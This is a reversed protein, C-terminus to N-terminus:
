SAREADVLVRLHGRRTLEVVTDPDPEADIGQDARPAEQGRLGIVRIEDALESLSMRRPVAAPEPFGILRTVTWGHPATFRGAHDLCLEPVGPDRQERLPGVQVRAQGYDFVLGAV